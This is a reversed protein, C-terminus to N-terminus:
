LDIPRRLATPFVRLRRTVSGGGALAARGIRSRSIGVTELDKVTLEQYVPLLICRRQFGSFLDRTLLIESKVKVASLSM